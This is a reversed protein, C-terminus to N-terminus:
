IKTMNEVYENKKASNCTIKVPKSEDIDLIAM